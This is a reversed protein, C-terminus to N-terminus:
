IKKLKKREKKGREKKKLNPSPRGRGGSLVVVSICVLAGWVTVCELTPTKATHLQSGDGISTCFLFVPLDPAPRFLPHVTHRSGSLGPIIFLSLLIPDGRGCLREGRCVSTLFIVRQKFNLDCYKKETKSTTTKYMTRQKDTGWHCKIFVNKVMKWFKLSRQNKASWSLGHWKIEGCLLRLM